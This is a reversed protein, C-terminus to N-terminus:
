DSWQSWSDDANQFWHIGTGDKYWVAGDADPDTYEGGSPLEEWSSVTQPSDGAVTDSAQPEGTSSAEADSPSESPTEIDVIEPQIKEETKIGDEGSPSSTKKGQSSSKSRKKKKRRGKSASSKPKRLLITIAFGLGGLLLVGAIVVIILLTNSSGDNGSGAGDVNLNGGSGSNSPPCGNSDAFIYNTTPCRDAKKAGFIFEGPLGSVRSENWSSDGWNDGYGDGDSDAWQTKESTFRDAGDDTTWVSEPNSYGDGDSDICGRRDKSSNGNQWPCQDGNTGTINDGYGDGDTDSSQTPDSDDFDNDESVGDSDADRESPACGNEDVKTAEFPSTNLCLDFNDTIGDADYDRESPGCGEFNVDAIEDVTCHIAALKRVQEPELNIRPRGAGM